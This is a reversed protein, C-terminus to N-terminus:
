SFDPTKMFQAPFFCNTYLVRSCCLYKACAVQELRRSNRKQQCSACKCSKKPKLNTLDSHCLNTGSLLDPNEVNSCNVLKASCGCSCLDSRESYWMAHLAIGCRRAMKPLFGELTPNVLLEDEVCFKCFYKCPQLRARLPLNSEATSLIEDRVCYPCCHKQIYPINGKIHNRNFCFGHQSNLKKRAKLMSQIERHHGPGLIPATNAGTLGRGPM